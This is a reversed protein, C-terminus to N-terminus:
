ILHSLLRLYKFSLSLFHCFSLILFLAQLMIYCDTIYGLLLYAIFKQFLINCIHCMVLIYIHFFHTSFMCYLYTMYLHTSVYNIHFYM